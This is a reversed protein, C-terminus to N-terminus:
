NQKMKCTPRGSIVDEEENSQGPGDEEEEHGNPQRPGDEEEEDQSRPQTTKM